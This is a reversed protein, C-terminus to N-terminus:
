QHLIVDVHVKLDRSVPHGLHDLIIRVGEKRALKFSPVLDVDGAVVVITDVLRKLAMWAIDLGIRLDVGKQKIDPIFDKATPTRPAKQIAKVAAGGLKWGQFLIEGRRVAFNPSLDLTEQLSTAERSRKTCGLDLIYGDIPNRVIKQLPPADYYFIRLLNLSELQSSEMIRRCVEQIDSARPYRLLKQQLKKTVFGGDLIISFKNAM